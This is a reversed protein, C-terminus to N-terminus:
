LLKELGATRTTDDETKQYAKQIKPLIRHDVLTDLTDIAPVAVFISLMVMVNMAPVPIPPLHM